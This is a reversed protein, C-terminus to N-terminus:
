KRQTRGPGDAQRVDRPPPQAVKSSGGQQEEAARGDKEPLSHRLVCLLGGIM